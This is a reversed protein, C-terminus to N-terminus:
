PMLSVVIDDIEVDDGLRGGPELYCSVGVFVTRPDLRTRDITLPLWRDASNVDSTVTHWTVFQRDEDLEVLAITVKPRPRDGGTRSGDGARVLATLTLTSGSVVHVLDSNTEKTSTAETTHRLVLHAAPTQAGGSLLMADPSSSWGYIPTGFTGLPSDGVQDFDGNQILGSAPSGGARYAIYDGDESIVDCSGCNKDTGLVVAGPPALEDARLHVFASRDIGRLAGYWYAEIYGPLDGRDRLYIPWSDAALAAEFVGPFAADFAGGRDPGYRQFQVQFVLGQAATLAVLGILVVRSERSRTALHAAGVAAFIMLFVPFAILRNTHFEDITLSAPVLSVLLGFGVFRIWPDRWGGHVVRDLGAIALVLTGALLSGMVPVHHRINPDGTLLLRQLSLNGLLHDIFQAGIDVVSMGPKIYSLLDARAGLVGPNALNFALAPLLTLGFLLWTVIISRARSRSAFLILGFAFVPGLLRGITYTYTLLGLLLALGAMELPSWSSKAYVRRLLLLFAILILPFFIVEFVLRGVELFWPTMLATGAVIWAAWRNRTVRGALIGLGLSLVFGITVSLLRATVISPGFVRFVIAMVYENVPNGTATADWSQFFIPWAVGHEDQGTTAISYANYSQSAEDLYFGPPNVDIRWAYIVFALALLPLLRLAGSLREFRLSGYLGPSSAPQTV